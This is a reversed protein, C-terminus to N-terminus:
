AKRIQNQIARLQKFADKSYEAAKQLGHKMSFLKIVYEKTIKQEQNLLEVDFDPPYIGFWAQADLKDELEEEYTDEIMRVSNGALRATTRMNESLELHYTIFSHRFVNQQKARVQKKNNRSLTEYVDVCDPIPINHQRHWDRYEELRTQLRRNMDPRRQKGVPLRSPPLFANKSKLFSLWFWLNDPLDKNKRTEKKKATEADVRIRRKNFNIDDWTRKAAESRRLGAFMVLVLQVINGYISLTQASGKKNRLEEARNCLWYLLHAADAPRALKPKPEKNKRIRLENILSEKSIYKNDACWRFFMRYLNHM